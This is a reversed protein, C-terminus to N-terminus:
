KVKIKVRSVPRSIGDYIDMKSFHNNVGGLEYCNNYWYGGGGVVPDQACNCACLDNDRDKTSFQMGNSYSFGNAKAIYKSMEQNYTANPWVNMTFNTTENKVQFMYYTATALNGTLTMLLEFSIHVPQQRTLLHINELGIWHDRSLNGFGLKYEEWSRDFSVSGDIRQQIITWGGNKM